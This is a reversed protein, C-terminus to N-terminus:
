ITNFKDLFPIDSFYSNFITLENFFLLVGVFIVLVGTLVEVLPMLGRISRLFRTVPVVALGTIMFPVGLGLSYVLLLYAGKAVSSSSASLTLIAGLVPGICPTWGVAFASGVGASKAYTLGHWSGGRGGIAVKGGGTAAALSGREGQPLPPRPTLAGGGATATELTYTRYLWPIRIVGILNLGMVVLFVGGIRALLATNDRVVYSSDQSVLAGILGASAGVFTFVATFGLVFAGAHALTERREVRDPEATAAAGTLHALYAPVLPLVCPSLFSLIGAAFAFAFGYPGTLYDVWGSTM